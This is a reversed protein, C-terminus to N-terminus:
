AFFVRIKRGNMDGNNYTQIARAAEKHSKFTILAEGHEVDCREINGVESLASKVDKWTLDYPVNTIKIKRKEEPANPGKRVVVRKSGSSTDMKNSDRQKRMAPRAEGSVRRVVRRRNRDVTATAKGASRTRSKEDKNKGLAKRVSLKGKQDLKGKKQGGAAPAKKPRDKRTKKILDDLSMTLKKEVEMVIAVRFICIRGFVQYFCDYSGGM